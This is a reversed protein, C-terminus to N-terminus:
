EMLKESRHKKLTEPTTGFKQMIRENVEKPTEDETPAIFADFKYLSDRTKPYSAHPIKLLLSPLQYHYWGSIQVGSKFTSGVIREGKKVGKGLGTLIDGVSYLKVCSVSGTGMLSGMVALLVVM